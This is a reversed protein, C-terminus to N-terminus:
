DRDTRRPKRDSLLGLASARAEATSLSVKFVEAVASLDKRNAKFTDKFSSAPMLLGTAFWNAEDETVSAGEYRSAWLPKDFRRGQQDRAWLYHLVYHGLEHAVTFRLREPSTHWPVFIEFDNEDRVVIAGPDAHPVSFEKSEIRGGLLAVLENLDGGPQFRLDKAVKEALTSILNPSLNTAVPEEYMKIQSRNKM